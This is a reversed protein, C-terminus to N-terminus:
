LGASPGATMRADLQEVNGVLNKARARHMALEATRVLRGPTDDHAKGSSSVGVSVTLSLVFDDRLEMPASALRALRHALEAAERRGTVEESVVVFKDDGMRAVVDSPQVAARLRRAVAELVADGWAYGCCVNVVSFADIDLFVVAVVRGSGRARSLAGRVHELLLRRRPLGTLSDPTEPHEVHTSGPAQETARFTFCATGPEGALYSITVELERESGDRHPARVVIPRADHTPDAMLEAGVAAARVRDADHALKLGRTGVLEAPEYGLVATVSPSVYRIIGEVSSVVVLERGTGARSGLSPPSPVEVRGVCGDGM